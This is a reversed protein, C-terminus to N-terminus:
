SRCEFARRCSPDWRSARTKAVANRTDELLHLLIGRPVSEILPDVLWALLPPVTRTLAVSENQLYVGGDKEEVRWYSYLRWMYGHDHGVPLECEDPKGSNAVEAIRTSRSVTQRRTSGFDTDVVDFDANLVATVVSKNFLQLYIKAENGSRELLRSRRVEPKYIMQQHDYDQLVAFIESLTAGPIFIVGAWHHLLGSPIQIPQDDDRTRLQQIYVQGERLQRYAQERRPEPLRDVVLFHDLLLDNDMRAETARIYREFASVTEPKLEAACPAKATFGSFICLLLLARRM